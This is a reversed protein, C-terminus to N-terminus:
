DLDLRRAVEEYIGFQQYFAGCYRQMLKAASLAPPL